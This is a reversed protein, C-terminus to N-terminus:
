GDSDAPEALNDLETPNDPAPPTTDVQPLFTALAM